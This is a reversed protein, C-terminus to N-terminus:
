LDDFAKQWSARFLRFYSQSIFYNNKVGNVEFGIKVKAEEAEAV